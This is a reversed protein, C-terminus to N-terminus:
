SAMVVTATSPHLPIGDFSNEVRGLLEIIKSHPATDNFEVWGSFGEKRAEEDVSKMLRKATLYDYCHLAAGWLDWKVAECIGTIPHPVASTFHNDSNLAYNQRALKSPSCILECAKM